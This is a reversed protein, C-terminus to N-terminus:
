RGFIVYISLGVLGIGVITGVVAVDSMLVAVGIGGYIVAGIKELKKEKEAERLHKLNDGCSPCTKANPSVDANCYTCTPM